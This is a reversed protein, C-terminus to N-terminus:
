MIMRGSTLGIAAIQFNSSWHQDPLGVVGVTYQGGRSCPVVSIGASTITRL